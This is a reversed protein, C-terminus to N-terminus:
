KYFRDSRFREVRGIFIRYLLLAAAANYLILIMTKRFVAWLGINSGFFHYMSFLFGQFFVTALVTLLVITMRNERNVWTGAAMIGLATLLYGLASIGAYQLYCIDLFLGALTGFLPAHIQKEYFLAFAAVLCLILDPTTGLVAFLNLATGQIFAAFFFILFSYRYKM